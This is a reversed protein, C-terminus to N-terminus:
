VGPGQAGSPSGTSETARDEPAVLQETHRAAREDTDAADDLAHQLRDAVSEEGLQEACTCAHNYGALFYHAVRRVNTLVSADGTPSKNTAEMSADGETILGEM